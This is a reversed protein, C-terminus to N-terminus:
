MGGPGGGRNRRREQMLKEYKTFQEETLIKKVEEQQKERSAQMKERMESRDTDGGERMAEFMAQSEKGSKVFLEELKTSQDENLQLEEKLEATQQKAREEPDMRQGGFNQAMSMTTGVLVLMFLLALRKMSKIKFNM